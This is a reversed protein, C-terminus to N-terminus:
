ATGRNARFDRPSRGFRKRFTRTFYSLDNFGLSYAIESIRLTDSGSKQLLEAANAMRRELIYSRPTYGHSKFLRQISRVSIGLETAVSEGDLDAEALNSEIYAIAKRRLSEERVAASAGADRDPFLTAVAGLLVEEYRDDWDEDPAAEIARKLASVIAFTARTRHNRPFPHVQAAMPDDILTLMRESPIKITIVSIEGTASVDWARTADLLAIDGPESLIEQGFQHGCMSGREQLCLLFADSLPASWRGVRARSARGTSPTSEFWSMGLSGLQIRALRARFKRPDDVDFGFEAYTDSVFETWRSMRQAIPLDDSAYVQLRQKM